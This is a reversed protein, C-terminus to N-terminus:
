SYVCFTKAMKDHLAQKRLDFAVFTVSVLIPFIASKALAQVEALDPNTFLYYNTLLVGMYSLFYLSFRVLSQELTIEKGSENVVKINLLMKGCTAQYKWEMLVKYLMWVFGTLLQVGLLKWSLANQFSVFIIPIFVSVDILSAGVRVWFGAFEPAPMETQIPELFESDLTEPKM